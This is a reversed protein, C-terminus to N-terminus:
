WAGDERPWPQMVEEEPPVGLADALRLVTSLRPDRVGSEVRSIATVHLGSAASVDEQTLRLKERQARLNEGFHQARDM